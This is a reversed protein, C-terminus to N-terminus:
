RHQGLTEHAVVLHHGHAPALAAQPHQRGVRRQDVRELGHGIGTAHRHPQGHARAVFDFGQDLTVVALATRGHAGQDFVEVLLATGQFVDFVELVHGGFRRHNAQDVQDQLAPHFMAGRVNMDFGEFVLELHAVADIAHQM